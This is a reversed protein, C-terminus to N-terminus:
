LENWDGDLVAEIQAGEDPSLVFREVMKARQSFEYPSHLLGVAKDGSPCRLVQWVHLDSQMDAERFPPLGRWDRRRTRELAEADEASGVATFALEQYSHGQLPRACLPCSRGWTRATDERLMRAIRQERTEFRFWSLITKRLGAM